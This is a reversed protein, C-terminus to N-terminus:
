SLFVKLRWNRTSRMCTCGRVLKDLVDFENKTADTHIMIEPNCDSEEGMCTDEHHQSLLLIVPKNRTPVYLVLTLDSTFSFIASYVQSQKGSLFLLPIEPQYKRLTGILTMDRNLLINALECSTLFNHITVGRGIGYMYCVMGKVVEEKSWQQQWYISPNKPIFTRQMLLLGYKSVM